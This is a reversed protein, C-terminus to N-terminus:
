FKLGAARAGEALSKIRGHYLYGGRDFTITDIGAKLAKEAVLKGVATAIEVNTGKGIEKERSSAALITVGNVDDILQAYIEKNSRFVSLRPNAATGSISKRIRFRIRQRRDSKTLSM